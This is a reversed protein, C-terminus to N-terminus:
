HPGQGQGQGQGQRAAPRTAVALLGGDSWIAVEHIPVGETAAEIIRGSGLYVAVHHITSPDSPRYAWFVLDGPQAAALPVAAQATAAYQEAATRPLPVGIQAYGMMTLGSCDFGVPGTGGWLYPKGLQASLWSWLPGLDTPGAAPAGGQGPSSSLATTGAVVQGAREFESPDAYSAVLSLISAGYGPCEHGPGTPDFCWASQQLSTAASAVDGRKLADIIAQYGLAPDANTITALDAALGVDLTPYMRVGDPNGPLTVEGPEPLTSNLPNNAEPLAGEQTAWALAFKVAGDSPAGLQSTFAEAWALRTDGGQGAFAQGPGLGGTLTMLLALVPLIALGAVGIVVAALRTV